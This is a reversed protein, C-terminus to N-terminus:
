PLYRAYVGLESVQLLRGLKEYEYKLAVVIHREEMPIGEALAMYAASYLIAKINSGSLEFKEAFFTYNITPSLQVNPPLVERWLAERVAQDPREFGVSYTIRRIMAEDFNGFFNTALICIGNYEEMKQLLFATESNAHKDNSTSVETRKAFIADAEDFFLVVNSSKARDFLDSLNKETEGIYKSSIQSIDVRYLEAGVENAIVQATMTKGTGSPGYLLISLSNGYANHSSINWQEQAKNRLLYRMCAVQLLKKKREDIKLNDWTYIAPVRSALNGFDTRNEEIIARLIDERQITGGNGRLLSGAYAARVIRQIQHASLTHQMALKGLNIDPALKYGMVETRWISERMSVDPRPLEICSFTAGKLLKQYNGSGGSLVTVVEWDILPTIVSERIAQCDKEDEADANTLYPLLGLVRVCFHLEGVVRRQEGKDWSHLARLDLCVFDRHRERAYSALLQQKDCEEDGALYLFFSSSKGLLESYATSFSRCFATSGYQEHAAIPELRALGRPLRGDGLLYGCVSDWLAIPQLLLSEGAPQATHHLLGKGYEGDGQVLVRCLSDDPENFLTYLTYALGVTPQKRAIDDQLYGYIRQYKLDLQPAVALLLATRELMNMGLQQELRHLPLPVTTNEVRKAIHEAATEVQLTFMASRKMVTRMVPPEQLHKRIEQHTVALGRTMIKDPQECDKLKNDLCFDLLMDLLLLSEQLHERAAIYPASSPEFYDEYLVMLHGGGNTNVTFLAPNTFIHLYKSENYM